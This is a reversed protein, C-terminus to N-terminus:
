LSTSSYQVVFISIRKLLNYWPRSIVGYNRIFRKYYGALGLFGRLEKVNSPVPWKTIAEIKAPDTAIGNM